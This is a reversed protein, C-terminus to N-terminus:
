PAPGLAAAVDAEGVGDIEVQKLRMTEGSTIRVSSAPRRLAKAVLRVMAANAQGDVPAAAVRIKLYPRGTADRAWGDIRDCGARPTLRVSLRM